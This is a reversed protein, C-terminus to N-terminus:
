AELRKVTMVENGRPDIVKVAIRKHKGPGFPLSLTGKFAEFADVDASSNLAKAIKEWANQNPFFAQTICFCRGDYDSDLFWAAVKDAGSSRVTNEVPNYIDVGRLECIWEGKGHPRVNVDPQGFITFLQSGPTDKLLGDMAPNIDPRIYAQHIRLRPHSSEAIVQTAEAEFSFGAVVLEDYIKSSRLADEVQVATVPGYQPGFTVAVTARGDVDGDQWVGEAHIVSGTAEEFRSDVRAFKRQQNNLFTLGDARLHQVMKTLYVQINILAPDPGVEITDPAFENPTPDFLGDEGLALEEPQVGEVTYPGSVRVVGRAVEPQDVLDELEASASICADVEAMKERWVARYEAVAEQLALPWDSDVDFPVEWSYWGAFALEAAAAQRRGISSARNSPPLLWRRRDADTVSRKGERKQKQRLKHELSQRLSPDVEKMAHNCKALAAELRPAHRALIPDLDQSNAIASPTIHPVKRYRFGSGPNEAVSGDGVSGARTLFHEFRETLLRQRALAIAVRSTDIAIWRRGWKEAVYPTTGSGCTPDLVLDGPVTTMLLCREVIKYSTQVVYIPNPEGHVDDWVNSRTTYAWDNWYVVAGLSEGGGDFIREASALRPMAEDPDYRWHCNKGCSFARGHYEFDKSRGSPDQSVIPYNVRAWRAGSSVLADIGDQSLNLARRMEGTPLILTNFKPDDEPTRREYYLRNPKLKAKERAYWLLYDCVPDTPTTASKKKIVVTLVFNEAGFVEDAVCRVNHLLADSFTM